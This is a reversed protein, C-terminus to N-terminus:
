ARSRRVTGPPTDALPWGLRRSIVERAESALDHRGRGTSALTRVLDVEVRLGRAGIIRWLNALFTTDGIWVLEEPRRGDRDSYVLAVALIDVGEECAAEILNAHFPLVQTGDTTMAEPFIAVPWGARLRERMTGIVAHVARRRSREIFVTGAMAVLQGIVPWRRIDSTAVFAAPAVANISFIDLWSLHNAVILRGEALRALRPDASLKLGCAAVLARSWIGIARRRFAQGAMPFLLAETALGGLLLALLAPLRWLRSM